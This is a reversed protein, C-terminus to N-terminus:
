NNKGFVHTKIADNKVKNKKENKSGLKIGFAILFFGLICYVSWISSWERLDRPSPMSPWYDWHYQFLPVIFFFGIGFISLISVGSFLELKHNITYITEYIYLTGVLLIPVLMLFNEVVSDITFIVAVALSILLSLSMTEAEIKRQRLISM